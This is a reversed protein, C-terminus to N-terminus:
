SRTAPSVHADASPPPTVFLTAPSALSNTPTRRKAPLYHTMATGAIMADLGRATSKRNSGRLSPAIAGCHRAFAADFPLPDFTSEELQLVHQRRVRDDESRNVLPVVSLDALTVAIVFPAALPQEPECVMLDFVVSTDLLGAPDYSTM